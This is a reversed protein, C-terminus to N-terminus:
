KLRLLKQIPNFVWELATLLIRYDRLLYIAELFVFFFLSLGIVIKKTRPKRKNKALYRLQLLIICGYLFAIAIM